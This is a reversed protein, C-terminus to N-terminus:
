AMWDLGGDFTISTMYHQIGELANPAAMLLYVGDSPDPQARNEKRCLSYCTCLVIKM